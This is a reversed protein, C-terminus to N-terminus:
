LSYVLILTCVIMTYGNINCKIDRHVIQQSKLYSLAEFVQCFLALYNRFIVNQMTTKEKMFDLVCKCSANFQKNLDGVFCLPLM